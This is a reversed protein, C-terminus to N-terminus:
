QARKACYYTGSDRCEMANMQLYVEKKANDKTISIRNKLSDSYDTSGGGWIVRIWEMTGGSLLRIFDVSYSAIDYGSVTCNM